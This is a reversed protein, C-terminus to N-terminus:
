ARTTSRVQHRSRRGAFVLGDFLLFKVVFMVGYTALYVLDLLVTRAGTGSVASKVWGDALTTTGVALLATGVIIAVYMAVEATTIRGRRKWAVRNLLYNPLVGAAFGVVSAVAPGNHALGYSAMFALQSVGTAVLSGAAYRWLTSSAAYRWLRVAFGGQPKQGV